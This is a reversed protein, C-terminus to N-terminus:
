LQNLDKMLQEHQKRAIEEMSQPEVMSSIPKVEEKLKHTTIIQRLESLVEKIERLYYGLFFSVPLGILLYYM